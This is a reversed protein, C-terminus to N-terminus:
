GQADIWRPGYGLNRCVDFFTTGEVILEAWSLDTETIGM